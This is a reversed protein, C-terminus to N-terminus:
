FNRRSPLLVPKLNQKERFFFKQKKTKVHYVVVMKGKNWEELFENPSMFLLCKLMRKKNYTEYFNQFIRQAHAMSEFEFKRCVLKEVTSHFSEVYGNQQPTAPKIFEQFIQNEKLHERVTKAVFQSGNDSRITVLIHRKLVNEPQLYNLILQDILQVVQRSKMTYALSWVLANRTFVDLITILYANRRDGRIYIYKIDIELMEFPQSPYPQSYKVYNKLQNPTIRKPNLLHNEKMLRYVKKRNIIYKNKHLEVTVKEYGYDIFDPSIIEKVSKVVVSNEVVTGDEKMTFRTPKKGPRRGNSMYYYGSRSFGAIQAAKIAKMGKSIYRNVIEKREEM